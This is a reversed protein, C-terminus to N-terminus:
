MQIELKQLEECLDKKTIKLKKIEHKSLSPKDPM